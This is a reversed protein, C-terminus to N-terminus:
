QREIQPSDTPSNPEYQRLYGSPPLGALPNREADAPIPKIKAENRCNAIVNKLIQTFSCVESLDQKLSETAPSPARRIQAETQLKGLERISKFMSNEAERAYKQINAFRGLVDPNLIPDTDIHGLTVGFTQEALRCRELKWACEVIRIFIVEQLPTDPKLSGRLGSELENFIDHQGPLIIFGKSTLSHTTANRSSAALGAETKPGTSLQANARNAALQQETAMLKTRGQQSTFHFFRGPPHTRVLAKDIVM